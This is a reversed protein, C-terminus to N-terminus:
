HRSKVNLETLKDTQQQLRGMNDPVLVNKSFGDTRSWLEGHEKRQRFLLAKTSARM